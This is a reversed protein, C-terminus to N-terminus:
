EPQAKKKKSDEQDVQAMLNAQQWELMDEPTIQDAMDIMEDFPHEVADVRCASVLCCYMLMMLRSFDMEDQKMTPLDIGTREKFRVMAGMTLRCPYEKGAIQIYGKKMM